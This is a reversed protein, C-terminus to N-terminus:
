RNWWTGYDVKENEEVTGGKQEKRRLDEVFSIYQGYQNNSPLDMELVEDANEHELYEESMRLLDKLEKVKEMIRNM